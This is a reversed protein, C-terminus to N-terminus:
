AALLRPVPRVLLALLRRTLWFDHRRGGLLDLTGLVKLVFFGGSLQRRQTGGLETRNLPSDITGDWLDAGSDAIKTGDALYLGPSITPLRSIASVNPPTSGLAFWTLPNGQYTGLGGATAASSVFADYEAINSSEADRTGSTVFVVRFQDGPNLGPPTVILDARAIPGSIGAICLALTLAFQFRRMPCAALTFRFM